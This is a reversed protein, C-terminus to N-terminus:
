LAPARKHKIHPAVGFPITPKGSGQSM